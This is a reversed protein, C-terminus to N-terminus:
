NRLLDIWDAKPKVDQALQIWTLDDPSWRYCLYGAGDASAVLLVDSSDNLIPLPRPSLSSALIQIAFVPSATTIM